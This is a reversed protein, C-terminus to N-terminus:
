NLRKTYAKFYGHGVKLQFLASFTSKACKHKTAKIPFQPSTGVIKLYSKGQKKEIQQQKKKQLIPVQERVRRGLTSLSTKSFKYNLNKEQTSGPKQNQNINKEAIAGNQAMKDALENGYIGM